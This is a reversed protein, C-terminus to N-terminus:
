RISRAVLDCMELDGSGSAVLYNEGLTTFLFYSESNDSVKVVFSKAANGNALILDEENVISIGSAEWATIRQGIFAHLDAKPDWFQVAINMMTGHEPIDSIMGPEHAWSTLQYASPARSGLVLSDLMWASPFDFEFAYIVDQYTTLEVAPTATPDPPVTEAPAAPTDTELPELPLATNTPQTIPVPQTTVCAVLLLGLSLLPMSLKTFHKM